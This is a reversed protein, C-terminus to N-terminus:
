WPWLFPLVLFAITVPMAVITLVILLAWALISLGLWGKDTPPPNTPLRLRIVRRRRIVHYAGCSPCNSGVTGRRGCYACTAM